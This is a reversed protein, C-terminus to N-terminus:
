LLVVVGGLATSLRFFGDYKLRIDREAVRSEFEGDDYDIDFTCYVRDRKIKGPYYKGRGRYNAEVKAGEELRGGGGGGEKEGGWGGGEKKGM